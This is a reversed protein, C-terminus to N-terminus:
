CFKERLPVKLGYPFKQHFFKGMFVTRCPFNVSGRFFALGHAGQGLAIHIEDRAAFGLTFCDAMCFLAEAGGSETGAHFFAPSVPRQVALRQKGYPPPSFGERFTHPQDAGMGVAGPQIELLARQGFLDTYSLCLGVIVAANVFVLPQGPRERQMADDYAVVALANRDNQPFLRALGHEGDRIKQGMQGLPKGSFGHPVGKFRFFQIKDEPM